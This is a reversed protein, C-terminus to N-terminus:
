IEALDRRAEYEDSADSERGTHLGSGEPPSRARKKVRTVGGPKPQSPQWPGSPRCSFGPAAAPPDPVPAGLTQSM